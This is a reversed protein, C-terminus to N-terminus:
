LGTGAHSNLKNIHAQGPTDAKFVNYFYHELYLRAKGNVGELLTQIDTKPKEQIGFKQATTNLKPIPINPTLSFYHILPLLDTDMNEVRITLDPSAAEAMKNWYIYSLTAAVLPKHDALDVGYKSKIAERRRKFSNNQRQNFENEIVISPIADLPNRIFHCLLQPALINTQNKQHQVFIHNKRRMHTLWWSCIGDAELREHGINLGTSTLYHALSKSGCRPHGILVLKVDLPTNPSPQAIPRSQAAPAKPDAFIQGDKQVASWHSEKKHKLGAGPPCHQKFLGFELLTPPKLNPQNQMVQRIVGPGTVLWLNTSSQNQINLVTQEVMAKLFPNGKKAAIFSNTIINAQKRLLFILDQSFDFWSNLPSECGFSADAYLGGENYIYAYRFFDSRMAPIACTDFATAYHAPFHQALYERATVDNFLRQQLQPNQAQWSAVLPAIDDPLTAKDWFQMLTQPISPNAYQKQLAQFVAMDNNNAALLQGYRADGIEARIHALKQELPEGARQANKVMVVPNFNPFHPTLWDALIQISQGFDEVLGVFPLRELSQLALPGIDEHSGMFYKALRKSQFNRCQYDNENVLHGDIYGSLDTSKALVASKNESQQKKEFHYASAIRDIPHRIFIIPFIEVGDIQPPPLLATHSSFVIANPNAQIWEAVRQQQNDATPPFERSVWRGPFNKKLIADVSTGANKFLHYHFIIKRM